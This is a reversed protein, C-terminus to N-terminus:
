SDYVKLNSKTYLNIYIQTLQNQWGDFNLNKLVYNRANQGISNKMGSIMSASLIADYFTKKDNLPFNFGNEGNTIIGKLVPLDTVVVILSSSMAELVVGGLGEQRSPFVFIDSARYIEALENRDQILGTFLVKNRLNNEEIMLQLKKILAEDITPNEKRDRPGVVLLFLSTDEKYADIFSSILLDIGKREILSGVFILVKSNQPISHKIRLSQKEEITHPPRFLDTDISYILTHISSKPFGYNKYDAALSDSIALIGSFSRLLKLKINGFKQKHINGPTDSELLVSEYLTPINRNKAWAAMLLGGWWLVHFHLVDYAGRKLFLLWFLDFIWRIRELKTAVKQNNQYSFNFAKTALDICRNKADAVYHDILPNDWKNFCYRWQITPGGFRQKYHPAFIHLVRIKKSAKTIMMVQKLKYSKEEDLGVM